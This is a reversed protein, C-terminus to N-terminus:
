RTRGAKGFMSKVSWWQKFKGGRQKNKLKKLLLCEQVSLGAYRPKAFRQPVNQSELEEIPTGKGFGAMRAVDEDLEEAEEPEEPGEGGVRGRM